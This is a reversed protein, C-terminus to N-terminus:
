VGRQLGTPRRTEAQGGNQVLDVLSQDVSPNRGWFKKSEVITEGRLNHQTDLYKFFNLSSFYTSNTWQKEALIYYLEFFRYIFNLDM